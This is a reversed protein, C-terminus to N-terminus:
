AVDRRRRESNELQRVRERTCRLAIALAELTAGEDRRRIIWGVFARRGRRRMEKAVADGLAALADPSLEGLAEAALTAAEVPPIDSGGSLTM